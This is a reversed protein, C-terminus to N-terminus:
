EIVEDARALLPQPVELGIIKATKLNIAMEFVTPQEIPLEAPSIGRLIRAVYDAARRRFAVREAGFAIFCGDRAMSVRDCIVPVGLDLALGAIIAGDRLYEPAPACAVAQVGAARMAAFAEQYIIPENAFFPQIELSFQAGVRQMERLTEVHRPTKIVLVGIRQATPVAEHILAVHKGGLATSQNTLGTVTGGPRSLSTAWGMAIPDDGVFAMVIPVSKSRELVSEVAASTAAVFVDPRLALAERALIPLESRAGVHYTVVLNQGDSFGLRGLEPVVISRIDDASAASPSIVAIRHLKKRSQAMAMAPSAIAAVASALFTRRRM